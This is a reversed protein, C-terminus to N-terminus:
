KKQLVEVLGECGEVLVEYVRGFSDDYYPDAVDSGKLSESFDLFLKIKKKDRPEGGWIELQQVHGSTMGALVDFEEFDSEKVQRAVGEYDIGHSALEAMARADAGEGVHFSVTGASEVEVKGKLGKRKAMDKLIAEAMPSRCINGTCVFLIRFM